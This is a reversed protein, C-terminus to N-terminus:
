PFCLIHLHLCLCFKAPRRLLPLGPEMLAYSQAFSCPIFMSGWGATTLVRGDMGAESIKFSLLQAGPHTPQNTPKNPKKVLETVAYPHCRSATIVLHGTEVRLTKFGSVKIFRLVWASPRSLLQFYVWCLLAARESNSLARNLKNQVRWSIKCDVKPRTKKETFVYGCYFHSEDTLKLRM